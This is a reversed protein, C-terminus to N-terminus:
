FELGASAGFTFGGIPIDQGYVNPTTPQFSKKEFAYEGFIGFLICDYSILNCGANVFLGLGKGHINQDVYMSDNHQRVYFFRPGISLYGQVYECLDAIVRLGVDVPIQSMSTEQNGQLSKGKIHIYGISGYLNIMESLPYTGSGQIEFGGHRYIQRLTHDSFFFYGPKIELRASFIESHFSLIACVIALAYIKKIM